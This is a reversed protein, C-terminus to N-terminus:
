AVYQNAYCNAHTATNTSPRGIPSMSATDGKFAVSSEAYDAIRGEVTNASDLPVKKAEGSSTATRKNVSPAVSDNHQKRPAQILWCWLM